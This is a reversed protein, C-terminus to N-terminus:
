AKRYVLRSLQANYAFPYLKSLYYLFPIYFSVLLTSPVFCLSVNNLHLQFFLPGCLFCSPITPFPLSDHSHWGKLRNKHKMHSSKNVQSQMCKYFNRSNQLCHHYLVKENNGTFNIQKIVSGLKLISLRLHISSAFYM